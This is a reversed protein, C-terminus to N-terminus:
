PWLPRKAPIGARRPWRDSVARSKELIVVHAQGSSRHEVCRLGLRHLQAPPWRLPDPIELPPESVVLHGGVAVLPAACEALVAPAGFSRAVVLPYRERDGPARGLVEAREVVVRVREEIDLHQVCERLHGGRRTSSEVLVGQAEPWVLALVLGPLGAGSGLDLFPGRLDEIARSYGLAHELHDDVAGPGLFGRDRAVSLLAALAERETPRM